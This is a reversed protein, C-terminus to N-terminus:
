PLPSPHANPLLHVNRGKGEGEAWHLSHAGHLIKGFNKGPFGAVTKLLIQVDELM